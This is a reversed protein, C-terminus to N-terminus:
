DNKEEGAQELREKLTQAHEKQCLGCPLKKNQQESTLIRRGCRCWEIWSM